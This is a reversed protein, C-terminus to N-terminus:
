PTIEQKVLATWRRAGCRNLHAYDAFEADIFTANGNPRVVRGGYAAIKAAVVQWLAARENVFFAAEARPRLPVVAVTLRAGMGQAIRAVEGIAALAAPRPPAMRDALDGNWRGEAREFGTCDLGVSGAPDFALSVYTDRAHMERTLLSRKLLYYPDFDATQARLSSGGRLYREFAGWAIATPEPLAQAFDGHYSAMVIQRPRCLSTVIRLLRVSDEPNVGFSAANIVREGKGALQAADLSNLSMSSGLVLVECRAKRGDQPALAARLWQAKENFSASRSLHPAPFDAGTSAVLAVMAALGALGALCFARLFPTFTM